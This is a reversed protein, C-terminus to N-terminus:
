YVANENISFKKQDCDIEAMVGYPLTFTPCTHGFDMGTIIPLENLHEEDKVVKLLAANYEENFKNHYPRAFLIGKIKKLIGQAAYNRLIWKFILPDMMTESTELFLITDNWENPDPWYDTGKIFELVDACGGILRGQVRGKGQLFNWEGSSELKRKQHSLSEDFWELRESTWGNKNPKIEGIQGSSFLTCKIDEAQYGHMGGNEAFGVLVSTGYFSGLGAKMCVFHTVTTDSFGLFIKPNNKIVELDMFPLTRISDDGGINSIVAKIDKNSFAEMLDEARAAPNKYIWDAPRLANKTELVKLGFQKELQAKGAKYRHPLEGAGGWSLSITAITDGPQLKKPKILAKM